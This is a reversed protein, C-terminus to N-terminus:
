DRKDDEAIRQRLRHLIDLMDRPTELAHVVPKKVPEEAFDHAPHLVIREVARYGFHRACQELLQETEYTYEPAKAARVALHLVAGKAEKAPWQLRQPRLDRARHSGVITAWDRLLAGYIKGQKDMLPKTASKVVEDLTRPFLRRPRSHKKVDSM